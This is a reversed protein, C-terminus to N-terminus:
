LGTEQEDNKQKKKYNGEMFASVIYGFLMSCLILVTLPINVSVFILSFSVTVWNAIAFVVILVLLILGLIFKTKQKPTKREWFDAM